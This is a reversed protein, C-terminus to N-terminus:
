FVGLELGSHFLKLTMLNQYLLILYIYLLILLAQGLCM